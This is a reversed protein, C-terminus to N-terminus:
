VKGCGGGDGGHSDYREMLQFLNRVSNVGGQSSDCRGVSGLVEGMTMVM